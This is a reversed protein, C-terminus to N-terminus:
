LRAVAEDEDNEGDGESDWNPKNKTSETSEWENERERENMRKHLTGTHTSVRVITRACVAAGPPRRM